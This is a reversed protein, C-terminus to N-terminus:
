LMTTFLGVDIATTTINLAHNLVRYLEAICTRVLAVYLSLSSNLLHEICLTLALEQLAISVYDMRDFYGVVQSYSTYEILKETGRHLLGVEVSM